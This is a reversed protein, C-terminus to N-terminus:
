LLVTVYSITFDVIIKVYSKREYCVQAISYDSHLLLVINKGHKFM